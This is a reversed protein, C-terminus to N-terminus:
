KDLYITLIGENDEEWIRIKYDVNNIRVVGNTNRVSFPVHEEWISIRADDTLVRARTDPDVVECTDDFIGRVTASNDGVTIQVDVAWESTLMMQTESKLNDLFTM